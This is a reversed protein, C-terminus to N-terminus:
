HSFLRRPVEFRLLLLVYLHHTINHTTPTHGDARPATRTSIINRLRWKREQGDGADSNLTTVTNTAGRSAYTNYIMCQEVSSHLTIYNILPSILVSASDLGFPSVRVDIDLVMYTCTHIHSSASYMLPVGLVPTNLPGEGLVRLTPVTSNYHGRSWQRLKLEGNKKGKREELLIVNRIYSCTCDLPSLTEFKQSIIFFLLSILLYYVGGGGGWGGGRVWFFYYFGGNAGQTCHLFIESFFYFWLCSM